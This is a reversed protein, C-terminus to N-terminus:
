DEENFECKDFNDKIDETFLETKDDFRLLDVAMNRYEIHILKRIKGDNFKIEQGLKWVGLGIVDTKEQSKGYMGNLEKTNMIPKLERQIDSIKDHWTTGAVKKDREFTEKNILTGTIIANSGVQEYYYRKGVRLKTEM